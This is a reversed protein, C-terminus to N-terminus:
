RPFYKAYQPNARLAEIVQDDSAGPNAKKVENLIYQAESGLAAPKESMPKSRPDKDAYAEGGSAKEEAVPSADGADDTAAGKGGAKGQRYEEKFAETAKARSGGYDKFAEKDSTLFGSMEKVRSDAYSKAAADDEERQANTKNNGGPLDNVLRVESSGDRFNYILRGTPAGDENKEIQPTGQLRKGTKGDVGFGDAELRKALRADEGRQAMSARANAGSESLQARAMAASNDSDNLEKRASRDKESQGADFDQKDKQNRLDLDSRFKALQQERASAIGAKEQDRLDQARNGAANETAGAFILGLAEGMGAM